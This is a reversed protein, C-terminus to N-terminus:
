SGSNQLQSRAQIFQQDTKIQQHWPTNYFNELMDGWNSIVQQIDPNNKHDPRYLFNPEAGHYLSVHKIDSDTIPSQRDNIGWWEVADYIAQDPYGKKVGAVVSHIKSEPFPFQGQKALEKMRSFTESNWQQFGDWGTSSDFPIIGPIHSLKSSREFGHLNMLNVTQFESGDTTETNVEGVPYIKMGKKLLEENIKNIIARDGTQPNKIFFETQGRAGALTLVINSEVFQSGIRPGAIDYLEEVIAATEQGSLMEPINETVASELEPGPLPIITEPLIGEGNTRRKLRQLFDLQPVFSTIRTLLKPKKPQTIDEPQLQAGEPTDM